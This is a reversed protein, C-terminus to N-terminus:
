QGPRFQAGPGAEGGVLQGVQLREADECWPLSAARILWALQLYAPRRGTEQAVADLGPMQTGPTLRDVALGAQEFLQHHREEALAVRGAAPMGDGHELFQGLEPAFQTGRQQM